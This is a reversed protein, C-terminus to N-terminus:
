LSSALTYASGVQFYEFQLFEDQTFIYCFPSIRQKGVSEFACLDFLAILDHSNLDISSRLENQLRAQIPQTFIDAWDWHKQM